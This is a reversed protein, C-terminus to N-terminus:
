TCVLFCVKHDLKSSVIMQIIIRLNGLRDVDKEFSVRPSSSKGGPKPKGGKM